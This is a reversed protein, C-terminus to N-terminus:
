QFCAFSKPRCEHGRYWRWGVKRAEKIGIMVRISDVSSTSIRDLLRHATLDCPEQSLALIKNMKTNTIIGLM